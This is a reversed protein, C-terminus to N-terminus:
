YFVIDLLEASPVATEIHGHHVCEKWSSNMEWGIFCWCNHTEENALGIYLEFLKKIINAM